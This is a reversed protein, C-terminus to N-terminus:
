GPSTYTRISAIIDPFIALKCRRQLLASVFGLVVQLLEFGISDNFERIVEEFRPIYRM